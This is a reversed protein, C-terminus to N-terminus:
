HPLICTYANGGLATVSVQVLKNNKAGDKNTVILLQDTDGGAYCIYIFVYIYYLIYVLHVGCIRILIVYHICIHCAYMYIYAGNLIYIVIHINGSYIGEVEKVGEKKSTKPIYHECDYRHGFLRPSICILKRNTDISTYPM